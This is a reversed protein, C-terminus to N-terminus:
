EPLTNLISSTIELDLNEQALTDIPPIFVCARAPDSVYYRSNKISALLEIYEKSANLSLSISNSPDYFDYPESIYVGLIDEKLSLVCRNINFCAHFRCDKKSGKNVASANLPRLPLVVKVRRAAANGHLAQPLLVFLGLCVVALFGVSVVLNRLKCRVRYPLCKRLTPLRRRFLM